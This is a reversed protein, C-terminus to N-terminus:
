SEVGEGLVSRDKLGGFIDPMTLFYWEEELIDREVKVEAWIDSCLVMHGDRSLLIVGFWNKSEEKHEDTGEWKRSLSRPQHTIM